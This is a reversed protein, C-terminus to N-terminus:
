EHLKEFKGNEENKKCNDADFLQGNMAIYSGAKLSQVAAVAMGLNFDADSDKFAEPLFSATLVITKGGLNEMFRATEILTDSGHTIVIRNHGSDKIFNKLKLRDADTVDTSDKRLASIVEYDLNVQARKLIRDFAPEDIEFAYGLNTNPYAKDITGGTQIFLLKM